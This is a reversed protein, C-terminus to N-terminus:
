IGALVELSARHASEVVTALHPPPSTEWWALQVTTQPADALPRFAVGRRQLNAFSAPQPSVGIGASVLGLQTEIDAGEMVIRPQFGAQRCYALV